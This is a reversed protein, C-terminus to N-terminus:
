REESPALRGDIRRVSEAALPALDDDGAALARLRPLGAKAAPGMRGLLRVGGTREDDNRSSEDSPEEFYQIMRPVAAAAEPGLEELCGLLHPLM